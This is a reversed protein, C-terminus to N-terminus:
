ARDNEEGRGEKIKPHDILAQLFDDSVLCIIGSDDEIRWCWDGDEDYEKTIM